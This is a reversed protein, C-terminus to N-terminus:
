KFINFERCNLLEADEREHTILVLAKGKTHENLVACVKKKTSEDLGRFPEDLLLLDFDCALARAIAVRRKMGGSLECVCREISDALGLSSLLKRARTKDKSVLTVNTLASLEECLRDEQFVVSINRFDNKIEGDDQKELRTLLRLLTTKGIGSRGMICLRDSDGVYLSIDSLVRNEGYSKSVNKLEIM